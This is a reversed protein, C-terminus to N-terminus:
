KDDKNCREREQSKIRRFYEVTDGLGEKLSYRPRWKLIREARSIDPKRLQPDDPLKDGHIIESKSNVMERIIRALTEIEYEESSGLNIPECCDNAMLMILGEVLDWVYQFSRTQRGNGYITMPENSLAQVIFNSVVRGDHPDMRPGYTNFIRAVRVDVEYQLQYSYALAEACRKGEDYCARPGRISVAGRYDEPQPHVEPDGYVESTSALLLRANRKRALELLNATGVVNTLITNVPDKQYHAPSAVSALHYIQDVPFLEIVEKVDWELLTFHPHGKWHAINQYRGTSFDDIVTIRHGQLMLRDVLHSGVFGAGGTVIIHRQSESPISPVIEAPIVQSQDDGLYLAKLTETLEEGEM